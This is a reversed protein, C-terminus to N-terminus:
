QLYTLPDKYVGNLRVEFHLHPGTSMGTSGSVAVQQGRTVIDGKKVLLKSNHAYLTVIGGGHDIMVMYGYSNNWAAKIVTGANAALVKNGSGVGIDIGTHLKNKKLIPHFRMGFKSTVRTSAPTPWLMKGGVYDATGQLKLIEATLSNAEENLVDVQSELVKNNSEVSAKLRAVTGRSVELQDQQQKKSELQRQLTEQWTVLEKRYQELSTYQEELESLLKMDNQYIREAMDMNTM